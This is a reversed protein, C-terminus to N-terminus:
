GPFVSGLESAPDGRDDRLGLVMEANARSVELLSGPHQIAQLRDQLLRNDSRLARVMEGAAELQRDFSAKALILSIATLTLTTAVSLGCLLNADLSM